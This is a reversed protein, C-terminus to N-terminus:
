PMLELRITDDPNLHTGDITSDASARFNRDARIGWLELGLLALAAAAMAWGARKTAWGPLVWGPRRIRSWLATIGAAALSWWFPLLLLGQRVYGFFLAVTFLGAGSLLVVLVAWRRPGGGGALCVVLGIAVLPPLVWVTPSADPVFVDVPRRWGTLGGPWNWQM